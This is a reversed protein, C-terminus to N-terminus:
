IMGLAFVIAALLSTLVTWFAWLRHFSLAPHLRKYLAALLAGCGFSCALWALAVLYWGPQDFM